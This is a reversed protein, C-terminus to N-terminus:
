GVSKYHNGTNLCVKVWVRNPNSGYDAILLSSDRASSKQISSLFTRHLSLWQGTFDVGQSGYDESSSGGQAAEVSDHQM